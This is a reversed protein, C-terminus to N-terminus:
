PSIGTHHTSVSDQSHNISRNISGYSITLYVCGQVGGPTAVFIFFFFIDSFCSQLISMAEDFVSSSM